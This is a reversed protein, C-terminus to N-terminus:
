GGRMSRLYDITSMDGTLDPITGFGAKPLSPDPTVDIIEELHTVSRPIGNRFYNIKGIVLVPKELLDKVRRKWLSENPFSCRVPVGSLQEWITFTPNGHVNVVELTGEISSSESYGSRLIPAVKQPIDDRITAIPARDVQGDISVAVRRLRDRGKFLHSMRSLDELADESFYNPPVITGVETVLNLGHAIIEIAADEGPPPKLTITPATSRLELVQWQRGNKLRTAAYDVHRIFRRIDDIAKALTAFSAFDTEPQLIFTISEPAM